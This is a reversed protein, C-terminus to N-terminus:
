CPPRAGDTRRAGAVVIAATGIWIAFLAAMLALSPPNIWRAPVHLSALMTLAVAATRPSPAVIWLRLCALALFILLVDDYSRHYFSIRAAIGTLALVLLPDRGGDVWRLAALLGAFGAAACLLSAPQPPVGMAAVLSVLSHGQETFRMGGLPYTAAVLALPGHGSWLCVATLSAGVVLGAAVLGAYRREHLFVAAMMAVNTPKFLGVGFLLGALRSRGRYLLKTSALMIALLILGYQGNRFNVFVAPMALVASLCAIGAPRSVAAGVTWAYHLVIGLAALSWAGHWIQNLRFSAFPSFLWVWPFANPPYVTNADSAIGEARLINTRPYHGDLLLQVEEHRQHLDVSFVMGEPLPIMVLMALRLCALLLNALAFLWLMRSMTWRSRTM